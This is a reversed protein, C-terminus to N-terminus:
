MVNFLSLVSCLFRGGVLTRFHECLTKPEAPKFIPLMSVALENIYNAQLTMIKLLIHVLRDLYAIHFFSERRYV